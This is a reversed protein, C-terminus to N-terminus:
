WGARLTHLRDAIRIVRVRRRYIGSSGGIGVIAKGNSKPPRSMRWGEVCDLHTSM